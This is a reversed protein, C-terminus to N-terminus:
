LDITGEEPYFDEAISEFGVYGRPNSVVLVPAGSQTAKHDFRVKNHTHGHIAAVINHRGRVAYDLFSSYYAEDLGKGFYPDTKGSEYTPAHHTILVCRRDSHKKVAAMAWKRSQQHLKAFDHPALTRYHPPFRGWGDKPETLTRIQIFDNMSNKIRIAELNDYAGYKSWMTSGIFAVGDIIVVDNDMLIANPALKRLFRRIIGTTDEIVSGYHEHNGKVILVHRYKKLEEEAFRVFRRRLAMSRDDRLHEQMPKATWIDGALVLVDGGPLRQYGFELHLDSMAHIKVHFEWSFLLRM